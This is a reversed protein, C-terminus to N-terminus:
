IVRMVGGRDTGLSCRDEDGQMLHASVGERSQSGESRGGRVGVKSHGRWRMTGWRITPTVILHFTLSTVCTPPVILHPDSPDCQTPFDVSRQRVEWRM